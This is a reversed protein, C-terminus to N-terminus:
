SGPLWPSVTTAVTGAVQTGHGHCDRTPGAACNVQRVVTLDPPAADIGTDIISVHVTSVAGSGNGALTSSLDADIRDIGWPLTQAIATMTGDPEISAVLPDEELADMQQATLRAAFGRLASSYVHEARFGHRAELSQM